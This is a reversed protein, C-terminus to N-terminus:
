YVLYVVDAFPSVAYLFFACSMLEARMKRMFRM